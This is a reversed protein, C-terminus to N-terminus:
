KRSGGNSSSTQGSNATQGPLLNMSRAKLYQYILRIQEDSVTGRLPPMSKPPRGNLVIYNFGAFSFRKISYRLDVPALGKPDAIADNGHCRSCVENFVAHGEKAEALSFDPVRRTLLDRIEVSVLLEAPLVGNVDLEERIAASCPDSAATAHLETPAQHPRDVAYVGVQGDLGLQLIGLGALPAWMIAADIKGDVADQLPQMASSESYPYERIKTIGIARAADGAASGTHVGVTLDKVGPAAGNPITEALRQPVVLVYTAGYRSVGSLVGPMNAVHAGCPTAEAPAAQDAPAPPQQARAGAGITGVAAIAIGAFIIGLLKRSM